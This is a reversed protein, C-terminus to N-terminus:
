VVLWVNRYAVIEGHRTAWVVTEYWFTTKHSLLLLEGGELISTACFLFTASSSRLMHKNVKESAREGYTATEGGADLSTPDSEVEKRTLKRKM